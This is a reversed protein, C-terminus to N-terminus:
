TQRWDIQRIDIILRDAIAQNGVYYQIGLNEPELNRLLISKADDSGPRGYTGDYYNKLCFLTDDDATPGIVLDYDHSKDKKERCKLVFDLWGKDATEFYLMKLAQVYETDIRIEYLRESFLMKEKNRNRRVAERYKKHMMGIAQAKSVAMYFGKGFDKNGRGKSVDVHTIEFITGHYLTEKIQLSM